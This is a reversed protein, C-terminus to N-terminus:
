NTEKNLWNVIKFLNLFKNTSQKHGFISCYNDFLFYIYISFNVHSSGAYGYTSIRFYPADPSMLMEIFDSTMDLEAFADKLADSQPFINCAFLMMQSLVQYFLVLLLSNM